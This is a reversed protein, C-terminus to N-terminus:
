RSQELGLSVVFLGLDIEVLVFVSMVGKLVRYEAVWINRHSIRVNCFDLGAKSEYSKRLWVL